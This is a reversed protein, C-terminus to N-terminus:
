QKEIEFIAEDAKQASAKDNLLIRNKKIENLLEIYRPGLGYQKAIIGLEKIAVIGKMAFEVNEVQGTLRAFQQIINNKKPPAL